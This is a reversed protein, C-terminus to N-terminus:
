MMNFAARHANPHVFLYRLQHFDDQRRSTRGADGEDRFYVLVAPVLQIM